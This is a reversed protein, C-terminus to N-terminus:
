ETISWGPFKVFHLGLREDTRVEVEGCALLHLAIRCRRDGFPLVMIGSAYIQSPPFSEEQTHLPTHILQRM